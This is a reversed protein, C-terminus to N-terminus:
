GPQQELAELKDAAIPKEAAAPPKQAVAPPTAKVASAQETAAPVISTRSAMRAVSRNGCAAPALAVGGLLRLGPTGIGKALGGGAGIDLAVPGVCYELGGRWEAPVTGNAFAAHLFSAGEVELMVRDPALPSDGGPLWALAGRMGLENGSQVDLVQRTPRLRLYLNGILDIAARGSLELRRGLAVLGEGHVGDDGLYNGSKATPLEVSA